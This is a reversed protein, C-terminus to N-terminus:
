SPFLSWVNPSVTRSSVKWCARRGASLRRLTSTSSHRGSRSGSWTPPIPERPNVPAATAQLPPQGEGMGALREPTWAAHAALAAGLALLGTMLLVAILQRGRRNTWVSM